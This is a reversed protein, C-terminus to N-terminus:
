GLDKLQEGHPRERLVTWTKGNHCCHELIALGLSATLDRNANHKSIDWQGFCTVHGIDAPVQGSNAYQSTPNVTPMLVVVWWVCHKSKQSCCLGVHRCIQTWYSSM